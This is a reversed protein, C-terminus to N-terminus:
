EFVYFIWYGTNFALFCIPFVCRSYQDIINVDKITPMSARLVSAGRRIAHMMRPRTSHASAPAIVFTCLCISKHLFMYGDPVLLDM